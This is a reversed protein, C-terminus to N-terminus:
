AISEIKDLEPRYPDTERAVKLDVKEFLTTLDELSQEFAKGCTTSCYFHRDHWSRRSVPKGDQTCAADCTACCALLDELIAPSLHRNVPNVYHAELHSEADKTGFEQICPVQLVHTVFRQMFVSQAVSNLMVIRLRKKNNGANGRHHVIEDWLILAQGCSMIDRNLCQAAKLFNEYASLDILILDLFKNFSEPTFQEPIFTCFLEFADDIRVFIDSFLTAVETRMKKYRRGFKAKLVGLTKKIDDKWADSSVFECSWQGDYLRNWLGDSLADRFSKDKDAEKNSALVEKLTPLATLFDTFIESEESRFDTAQLSVNTIDFPTDYSGKLLAKIVRMMFNKPYVDLRKSQGGTLECLILVDHQKEVAGVAQMFAQMQLAVDKSEYHVQGLGIVEVDGVCKFGHILTAETRNGLLLGGVSLIVSITPKIKM